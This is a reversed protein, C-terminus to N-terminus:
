GSGAEVPAASADQTLLPHEALIQELTGYFAGARASASSGFVEREATMLLLWHAGTMRMRQAARVASLVRRQENVKLTGRVPTVLRYAAVSLNQRLHLPVQDWAPADEGPLLRGRAAGAEARVSPVGSASTAPSAAPESPADDAPRLEAERPGPVAAPGAGDVPEAADGGADPGAACVRVLEDVAEPARDPEPAPAAEASGPESVAGEASVATKAVAPAVYEAVVQELVEFVRQARESRASGFAGRPAGLLALWHKGALRMGDAARLAYRVGANGKERLVPQEPTVLRYAAVSLNQRLHLPVKRWLGDDPGPLLLGRAVGAGVRVPGTDQGVPGGMRSKDDEFVPAHPPLEEVARGGGAPVGAGDPEPEARGAGECGGGRVHAALGAPKGAYACGECSVWGARDIAEQVVSREPGFGAKDLREPLSLEGEEVTRLAGASTIDHGLVFWRGIGVEEGCGCFCYGTPLLRKKRTETM